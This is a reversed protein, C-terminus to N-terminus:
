LEIEDVRRLEKNSYKKSPQVQKLFERLLGPSVAQSTRTAEDTGRLFEAAAKMTQTSTPKPHRAALFTAFDERINPDDLSRTQIRTRVPPDDELESHRAFGMGSEKFTPGGLKSAPVGEGALQHPKLAHLAAAAKPDVRGDIPTAQEEYYANRADVAQRLTMGEPVVFNDEDDYKPIFTRGKPVPEFHKRIAEVFYTSNTGPAGPSLATEM